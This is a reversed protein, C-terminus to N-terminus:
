SNLTALIPSDVTAGRQLLEDVVHSAVRRAFLDDPIQSSGRAESLIEEPTFGLLPGLLELHQIRLATRGRLINGVIGHGLGLMREAERQSIRADALRLRLVEVVASELASNRIDM